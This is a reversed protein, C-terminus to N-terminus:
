SWSGPSVLTMWDSCPLGRQRDPDYVACGEAETPDSRFFCMRLRDRGDTVGSGSVGRPHREM